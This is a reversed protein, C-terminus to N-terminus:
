SEQGRIASLARTARLSDALEAAVANAGALDIQSSAFDLMQREPALCSHHKELVLNEILPLFPMPDVSNESAIRDLLHHVHSLTTTPLALYLNTRMAKIQRARFQLLLANMVRDGRWPFLM